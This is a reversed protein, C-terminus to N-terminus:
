KTNVNNKENYYDNVDEFDFSTDNLDQILRKINVKKSDLIEKIEDSNVVLRMLADETLASRVLEYAEDYAIRCDMNEKINDNLYRLYKDSDVSAVCDCDIEYNQKISAQCKKNQKMVKMVLSKVMKEEEVGAHLAKYMAGMTNNWCDLVNMAFTCYVAIIWGLATSGINIINTANSRYQLKIGSKVWDKFFRQFEDKVVGTADKKGWSPVQNDLNNVFKERTSPSLIELNSSGKLTRRWNDGYRANFYAKTGPLKDIHAATRKGNAWLYSLDLNREYFHRKLPIWGSKITPILYEGIWKSARSILGENAAAFKSYFASKTADDASGDLLKKIDDLEKYFGSLKWGEEPHLHKLDFHEGVKEWKFINKFRERFTPINDIQMIYNDGFAKIEDNSMNKKLKEISMLKKHFAKKLKALSDITSGPLKTEEILKAFVLPIDYERLASIATALNQQNLQGHEGFIEMFERTLTNLDDVFSGVSVSSTTAQGAANTSSKSINRGGFYAALDEITTLKSINDEIATLTAEKILATYPLSVGVASPQPALDGPIRPLGTRETGLYKNLRHILNGKDKISGHVINYVDGKLIGTSPNFGRGDKYLKMVQDDGIKIYGGLKALYEIGDFVIQKGFGGETLLMEQKGMYFSPFNFNRREEELLISRHQMAMVKKNERKIM